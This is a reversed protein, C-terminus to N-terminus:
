SENIDISGESKRGFMLGIAKAAIIPIIRVDINRYRDILNNL